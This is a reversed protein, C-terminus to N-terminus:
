NRRFDKTVTTILGYDAQVNVYEEKSTPGYAYSGLHGWSEDLNPVGYWERMEHITHYWVRLHDGMDEFELHSQWAPPAFRLEFGVPAARESNDVLWRFNHDPWLALEYVLANPEYKQAPGFLAQISDKTSLDPMLLGSSDIWAETELLDANDVGCQRLVALLRESRRMTAAVYLDLKTLAHM